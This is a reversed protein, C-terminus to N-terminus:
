DRDNDYNLFYSMFGRGASKVYIEKNEEFTFTCTENAELLTRTRESVNIRGEAGGSEMKNAIVVDQGYIDFRVLDTGIVGGFIDGTHIGIRMNFSANNM